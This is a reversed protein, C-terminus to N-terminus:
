LLAGDPVVAGAKAFAAEGAEFHKAALSVPVKDAGERAPASAPGSAARSRAATVWTIAPSGGWVPPM